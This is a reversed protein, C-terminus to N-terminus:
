LRALSSTRRTIETTYSMKQAAAAVGAFFYDGCAAAMRLEVSFQPLKGSFCIQRAQRCPHRGQTAKENPAGHTKRHAVGLETREARNFIRKHAAVAAPKADEAKRESDSNQARLPQDESM